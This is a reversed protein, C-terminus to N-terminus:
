KRLAALVGDVVESASGTHASPNLLHTLQEPSFIRKMEPDGQIVDFFPKGEHVSKMSLEYVSDHAKQKGIKEGLAFMFTESMILGQTLYLNKLM